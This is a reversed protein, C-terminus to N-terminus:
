LQMAPGQRNAYTARQERVMDADPLGYDLVVLRGDVRGHDQPKGECTVMPYYDPTQADVEEQTVPLARPMVVIFGLPDAFWIPCLHSWQFKPRWVRWM